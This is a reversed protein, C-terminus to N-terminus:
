AKVGFWRHCEGCFHDGETHDGMCRHTHDDQYRSVLRAPCSGSKAGRCPAFAGPEDEYGEVRCDLCLPVGRRTGWVHTEHLSDSV